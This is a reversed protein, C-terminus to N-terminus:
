KAPHEVSPTSYVVVNSIEKGADNRIVIRRKPDVAPKDLSVQIAIVKAKDIADTDSACEFGSPDILRHGDKIDFFYRPM